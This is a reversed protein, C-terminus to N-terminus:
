KDFRSVARPQEIAAPAGAFRDNEHVAPSHIGVEPLVLHHMQRRLVQTTNRVSTATVATGGIGTAAVIEIRQRSSRPATISVSSKDAVRHTARFDNAIQGAM